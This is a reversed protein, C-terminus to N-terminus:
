NLERMPKLGLSMYFNDKPTEEFSYFDMGGVRCSDSVTLRMGRRLTVDKEGLFNHWDDEICICREGAEM